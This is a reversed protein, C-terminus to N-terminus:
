YQYQHAQVLVQVKCVVSACFRLSMNENKKNFATMYITRAKRFIEYYYRSYNQFCLLVDVSSPILTTLHVHLFIM